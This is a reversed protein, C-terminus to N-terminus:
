IFSVYRSKQEILSKVKSDAGDGICLVTEYSPGGAGDNLYTDCSSQDLIPLLIEKMMVNSIDSKLKHQYYRFVQLMDPTTASTDNNTTSVNLGWGGTAVTTLTYFNDTSSPLCIPTFLSIFQAVTLVNTDCITM